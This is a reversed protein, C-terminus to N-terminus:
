KPIYMCKSDFSLDLGIKPHRDFNFTAFPRERRTDVPQIGSSTGHCPWLLYVTHCSGVTYLVVKARKKFFKSRALIIEGLM